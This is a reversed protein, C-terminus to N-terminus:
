AAACAASEQLDGGGRGPGAEGPWFGFDVAPFAAYEELLHEADVDGLQVVADAYDVVVFHVRGVVGQAEVVAEELAARSVARRGARCRGVGVEGPGASRSPGGGWSSVSSGSGPRCNMVTQWTPLGCPKM